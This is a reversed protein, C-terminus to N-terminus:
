QKHLLKKIIKRMEPSILMKAREIYYRIKLRLHLDAWSFGKEKVRKYFVKRIEPRYAPKYLSSNGRIVNEIDTPVSTIQPLIKQYFEKGKETNILIASIGDKRVLKSDTHAKEVGWYDGITIDGARAKQAYVCQYCSERYTEGLEFASYYPDVMAAGTVTKTETKFKYSTSWGWVSKDRFLYTNISSKFKKSLWELYEKFLWPSPTGHCILDVLILNDYEKKLFARVAAIECPTGIAIVNKGSDCDERLHEYIETFDSQVYKSGAFKKLESNKVARKHKVTLSDTMICGYAIGGEELIKEAMVAGAGGSSSKLTEDSNVRQMAFAAFPESLKPKNLVPCIRTCLECQICRKQEVEPVLFGEEDPRMSISKVPCIGFCAGCGTCKEIDVLTINM